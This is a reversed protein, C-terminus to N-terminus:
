QTEVAGVFPVAVAPSDAPWHVAEVLDVAADASCEAGEVAESAAVPEAAIDPGVIAAAVVAAVVDAIVITHGAVVLRGLAGACLM